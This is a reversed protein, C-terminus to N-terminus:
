PRYTATLDEQLGIPTPAATGLIYFAVVTTTTYTVSRTDVGAEPFFAEIKVLGPPAPVATGCLNTSHIPSISPRVTTLAVTWHPRDDASPHKTVSVVHDINILRDDIQILM